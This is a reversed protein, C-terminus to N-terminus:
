EELRFKELNEKHLECETGNDFKCLFSYYGPSQILDDLVAIDLQVVRSANKCQPCYAWDYGHHPHNIQSVQKVTAFIKM